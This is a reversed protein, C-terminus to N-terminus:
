EIEDWEDSIKNDDPDIVKININFPKNEQEIPTETQGLITKGLWILMTPNKDQTASEFQARRLSMKYNGSKWMLIEPFTAPRSEYENWYNAKIFRELTSVSVCLCNAIEELKMQYFCMTEFQKKNIYKGSNKYTDYQKVIFDREEETTYRITNVIEYAMPGKPKLEGKIM